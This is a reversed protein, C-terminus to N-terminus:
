KRISKSAQSPPEDEPSYPKLLFSFKYERVPLRYQPHPRARWGWTTDGGVGMQRYDLNLTVLEQLKLKGGHRNEGPTWFLDSYPFPFVSASMQPQAVVMLGCGDAATLTLWRVETKNGTEQPRVYPHFQEAVKGSYVGLAAGTKRDWYSEHPGRGFWSFNDFRGPLNLTLGLRPLDPLATDAASFTNELLVAGDGYIRYDTRFSAQVAPFGSRVSVRVSRAESRVTVSELRRDAEFLKWAFKLNQLDNDTPARWFNPKPGDQLLELDGSQWSTLNGTGKDFVLAFDKGGVRISSGDDRFEPPLLGAAGSRDPVPAVVPLQFQEWAIEHEAPLTATEDRIRARLTLIYEFGPKPQLQPLALRVQASTHPPVKGPKLEGRALVTDEEALEWTFHFGGLDTFDFKNEIEFLGDALDLARFAINQYVKKVEWIHPKLSRDAQVLGNACFNSDNAVGADGMDGGYGWFPTGDDATRLFTQDVWDWIFGGQLSPYREIVQWYDDLNGVSNGMAHAYECLILPRGPNTKAYAEIDRIVRYMPAVIDTHKKEGASEYQVPRDPDRKRTWAHTAEFNMGDGAENGMSWIIISPHNKDREVMRQMRDLYAARWDPNDSVVAYSKEHFQAGHAEINAEGVVYLGLEDCLEYWRPHNPYHSTRVANINFQKMLRIDQLMSEETIYRGTVPDHEHRNVGKLYIAVGNVLLQGNRIEVSRFGIKRSTAEVVNGSADKLILLLQYLNPTEATWQRCEPVTGTFHAKTSEGSGVAARQQGEFVTRRAPLDLLRVELNFGDVAKTADNQIEIELDLTGDRYLSDLGARVFFDQLHVAPKAYLYVERELGSLRWYDQGELYSGDSWRYVEASVTNRGPRVVGTINFEAPTKSGQSYGVRVGNVWVVLASRASGFHVFVQRDQWAEPLTFERRYSGVPNYDHPIFPPNPPFPYEEDLYIPMGFGQLEWNGPVEIESWNSVDFDDRFFDRPRDQPKRVWNFKWKGNLSQFWPSARHDDRLAASESDYSFFTAHAPQKDQEFVHPNEWDPGPSGPQALAAATSLAMGAFALLAKLNTM